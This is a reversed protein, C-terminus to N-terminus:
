LSWTRRNLFSFHLLIGYYKISFVGARSFHPIVLHDPGLELMTERRIPRVVFVYMMVLCMAVMGAALERWKSSPGPM